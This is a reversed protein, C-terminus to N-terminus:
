CRLLSDHWAKYITTLPFIKKTLEGLAILSSRSVQFNYSIDAGLYLLRMQREHTDIELPLSLCSVDLNRKGILAPTIRAVQRVEDAVDLSDRRNDAHTADFFPQSDFIM